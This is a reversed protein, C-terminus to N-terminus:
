PTGIIARTFYQPSNVIVSTLGGGLHHAIEEYAKPTYCRVTFKCKKAKLLMAETLHKYNIHLTTAQWHQMLNLWEEPLEDFLAGLELDPAHKLCYDLSDRDFSTILVRSFLDPYTLLVDLIPQVFARTDRQHPHRKIEINARMENSRLWDLVEIFLPIREGAFEPAFWSGADISQINHKTLEGITLQRNSCRKTSADHMVISTSDDTTSVDFEIWKAGQKLAVNFAALTNEPAHESAGRHAVLNDLITQTHDALM